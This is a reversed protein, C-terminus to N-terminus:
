TDKEKPDDLRVNGEGKGFGTLQNYYMKDGTLIKGNYHIRSNKNLYVEKETM